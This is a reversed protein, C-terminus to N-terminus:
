LHVTVTFLKDEKTLAKRVHGCVDGWDENEEWIAAGEKTYRVEGYEPWIECFYPVGRYMVGWCKFEGNEDVMEEVSVETWDGYDYDYFGFENWGVWDKGIEPENVFHGLEAKASELSGSVIMLVVRSMIDTYLLVDRERKCFGM